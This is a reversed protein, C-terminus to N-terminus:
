NKLVKKIIQNFKEKGDIRGLQVKEVKTKEEVRKQWAIDQKSPKQSKKSKM